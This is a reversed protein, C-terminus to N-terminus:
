GGSTDMRSLLHHHSLCKTGQWCHPIDLNSELSRTKAQGLGLEQLCEPFFWLSITFCLFVSANFYFVSFLYGLLSRQKTVVGAFSSCVSDLVLVFFAMILLHDSILSMSISVYYSFVWLFLHNNPSTFFLFLFLVLLYAIIGVLFFIFAM